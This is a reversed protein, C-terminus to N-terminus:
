AGVAKDAYKGLVHSCWEGVEMDAHAAAIRINRRTDSDITISVRVVGAKKDPEPLVDDEEVAKKQVAM